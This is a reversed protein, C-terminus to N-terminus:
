HRKIRSPPISERICQYPTEKPYDKEVAEKPYQNLWPRDISPYGTKNLTM